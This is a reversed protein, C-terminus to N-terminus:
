GVWERIHAFEISRCLLNSVFFILLNALLIRNCVNNISTTTFFHNARGRYTSQDWRYFFINNYYLRISYSSALVQRPEDINVVTGDSMKIFDVSWFDGKINDLSKLVASNLRWSWGQTLQQVVTFWPFPFVSALSYNGRTNNRWV